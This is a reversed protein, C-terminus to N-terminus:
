ASKLPMMRTDVKGKKMVYVRYIANTVTEKIFRLTLPDDVREGTDSNYVISHEVMKLTGNDEEVIRGICDRFLLRFTDDDEGVNLKGKSVIVFVDHNEYLKVPTGFVKETDSPEDVPAGFPLLCGLGTKRCLMEFLQDGELESHYIMENDFTNRTHRHFRYAHSLASQLPTPNTFEGRIANLTFALFQLYPGCKGRFVRRQSFPIPDWM